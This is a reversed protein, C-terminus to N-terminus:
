AESSDAAKGFYARLFEEAARGPEVLDALGQSVLYHRHDLVWLYLDAETRGPFAKLIDAERIVTAIPLYVTDYWHV